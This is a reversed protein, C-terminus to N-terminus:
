RGHRIQVFSDLGETGVFPVRDIARQNSDQSGVGDSRFHWHNSHSGAEGSRSSACDLYDM